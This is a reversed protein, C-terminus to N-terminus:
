YPQRILPYKFSWLVVSRPYSLPRKSHYTHTHFVSLMIQEMRGLGLRWHTYLVDTAKFMTRRGAGGGKYVGGGGIYITHVSCESLQTIISQM